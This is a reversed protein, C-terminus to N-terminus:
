AKARRLRLRGAFDQQTLGHVVSGGDVINEHGHDDSTCDMGHHKLNNMESTLSSVMAAVTRTGKM